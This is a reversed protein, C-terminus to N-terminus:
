ELSREIEETRKLFKEHWGAYLSEGDLARNLRNIIYQSQEKYGDEQTLNNEYEDLLSKIEENTPNKGLRGYIILDAMIVLDKEKRSM